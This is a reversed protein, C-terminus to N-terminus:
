KRFFVVRLFLALHTVRRLAKRVDQWPLKMKRCQNPNPVFRDRETKRDHVVRTGWAFHIHLIDLGKAASRM